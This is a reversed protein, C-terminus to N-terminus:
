TSTIVERKQRQRIYHMPLWVGPQLCDKTMQLIRDAIAIYKHEGSVLLEVILGGAHKANVSVTIQLGLAVTM